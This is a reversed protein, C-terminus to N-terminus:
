RSRQLLACRKRVRLVRSLFRKSHERAEKSKGLLRECQATRFTIEDKSRPDAEALAVLYHELAAGYLEQGSLAEAWLYSAEGRLESAAELRGVAKEAQMAAVQYRGEQLAIIGKALYIRAQEGRQLKSGKAGLLEDFREEAQETLGLAWLSKALAMSAGHTMQSMPVRGATIVAEFHKRDATLREVKIAHEAKLPSAFAGGLTLLLLTFRNFSM